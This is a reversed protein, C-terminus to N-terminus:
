ERKGLEWNSERCWRDKPLRGNRLGDGTTDSADQSGGKTRLGRKTGGDQEKREKEKKVRAFRKYGATSGRGRGAARADIGDEGGGFGTLSVQKSKPVNYTPEEDEAGWHPDHVLRVTM